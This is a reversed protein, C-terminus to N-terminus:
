KNNLLVKCVWKSGYSNTVTTEDYKPFVSEIESWPIKSSQSQFNSFILIGDPKLYSAFRKVIDVQRGVYYIAENFIVADYKEETEFDKLNICDFTTRQDEKSKALRIAENAIDIGTYSSYNAQTIREQLIGEGCGIDLLSGGKKLFLFYGAIISYHGLEHIERLPEWHGNKYKEDHREASNKIFKRKFFSSFSM